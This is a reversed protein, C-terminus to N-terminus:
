LRVKESLFALLDAFNGNPYASIDKNEKNILCPTLLFVKMGLTEAIMDDSVDNGVMLCEEASVGLKKIIERYYDPNPKSYSSNEYTTYLTFDEPSLGAWQIRKRTAVAPFVPNTALAVTYGMEKIKRVAESAMPDFGLVEKVKDFENAYFDDFIPEDAARRESGYRACFVKWFLAENTEKGDNKIMAATGRWITDTIEAPDYGHPILKKVLGGFYTKIFVDQDMPLLTGDLDFLVVKTKM